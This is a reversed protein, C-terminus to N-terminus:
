FGAQQLEELTWPDWRRGVVDRVKKIDEPKITSANNGLNTRIYSLVEALWLDDSNLQPPMISPYEKGDVPGKLGSLVIRILRGPDGTVRPSGALPPAVMSSSGFKLGKGDSGHCSSCLSKFNDAGKLVLGKQAEDLNETNVAVNLSTTLHGLTLQAAQYVMGTHASDKKIVAELLPAAKEATSYRLSQVLQTKVDTDTDNVLAKLMAMVEADDKALYPESIWIAMKRMEPLPDSMLQLLLNKDAAHMGELTWLAHIRGMDTPTHRWFLLNDMFTAGRVTSRLTPIVSSDQRLILLKQANDRWWGNPHSLYGVLAESSAKLLAPREKSPAINNHVIRYIRGRGINKDLGFRLIQPRIYSSPGTWNGEQIIGRYMDVIYLCGDPGTTMNVPRFNMDTSALFEAKDYANKVVRVGNKNLVKARRILRGVPECIFLDGKMYAPLKDGRFITQGCTATFHNLTSDPRLRKKGGEIDPTAILPWPEHFDGEYQTEEFDLEGYAPMQQFGKAAVEGGASSLYLRGYDDNGLGWQGAPVDELSDVKLGDGTWKYRLRISTYIWNDLNWLMGSRQHELNRKDIENNNYVRRKEDAIGDGNTDRYADINSSYTEQVVLREDLALLMRPLVLSDIFVTRKDMKGDGDTDELKVVQSIPANENTANIDQMYTRMEAVYMNGNGDWVMAVPEQVMPESAVLEVRFGEPLHMAKISEEPTLPAPSPNPIVPPRYAPKEPIDKGTTSCNFSVTICVAVFCFFVPKM